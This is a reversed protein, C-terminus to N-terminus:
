SSAQEAWLREVFQQYSNPVRGLIWSLVNPNGIFGCHDYHRNMVLMQEVRDEDFGKARANAAVQELTIAQATVPRGVVESIIAAMDQQNLGQPGALEYTAYEHGGEAAVIATAEALDELDVVSFHVETNFPMAHVGEDLVKQWIPLLHQMYRIPQLITYALGSEILAEETDLKLSHHRVERRLPHMVSYYIFHRVGHKKAAAIFNETMTKEDAHMPPGVHIVKDCGMVASEVLDADHMDGVAFGSAGMAKLAPWQERDRIFVKVTQKLGVLKNLIARGTKGNAGSLLITESM